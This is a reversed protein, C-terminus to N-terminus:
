LAYIEPFHTGKQWKYIVQRNDQLLSMSTDDEVYVCTKGQWTCPIEVAQTQQTRDIPSEVLMALGRFTKDIWGVM